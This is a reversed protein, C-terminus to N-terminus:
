YIDRHFWLNINIINLYDNEKTIKRKGDIIQAIYLIVKLTIKILVSAEYIDHDNQDQLSILSDSFGKVEAIQKFKLAL